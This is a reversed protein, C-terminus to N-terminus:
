TQEKDSPHWHGGPSHLYQMHHLTELVAHMAAQEYEAAKITMNGIAVQRPYGRERLAIERSICAIQQDLSIFM